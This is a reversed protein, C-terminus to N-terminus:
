LTSPFTSATACLTWIKDQMLLNNTLFLHRIHWWVGFPTCTECSPLLLLFFLFFLSSSHEQYGLLWFFPEFPWFFPFLFGRFAEEHHFFTSFQTLTHYLCIRTFSLWLIVQHDSSPRILAFTYSCWFSHWSRSWSIFLQFLFPVVWINTKRVYYVSIRCTNEWKKRIRLVLANKQGLPHTLM